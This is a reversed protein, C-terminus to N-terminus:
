KRGTTRFDANKLSPKAESLTESGRGLGRGFADSVLFPVSEGGVSVESM